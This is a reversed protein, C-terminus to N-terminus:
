IAAGLEWAVGQSWAHPEPPPQQFHNTVNMNVVNPQAPTDAVANQGAGGVFAPQAQTQPSPQSWVPAFNSGFNTYLEERAASFNVMDNYANTAATTTDQNIQESLGQYTSRASTVDNAIDTITEAPEGMSQAKTLIGEWFQQLNQAAAQDDLLTPLEENEPTNPNDAVNNTQSLAYAENLGALSEKLGLQEVFKEASPPGEAEAVSAGTAEPGTEELNTTELSATETTAEEKAINDILQTFAASPYKTAIATATRKSNTLIGQLKSIAGRREGLVANWNEKDKPDGSKNYKNAINTLTTQDTSIVNNLHEIEHNATELRGQDAHAVNHDAELQPISKYNVHHYVGGTHAVVSIGREYEKLTEESHKTSRKASVLSKGKKGKESERARLVTKKASDRQNKLSVLKTQESKLASDISSVVENVQDLPVAAASYPDPVHLEKIQQATAGTGPAATATAKKAAAKKAPAKKKSKGKAAEDVNYGLESAAERLYEVNDSRYAPNTAIVYETRNEEGVLLTPSDYKGGMTKEYPGHAGGEAHGFTKKIVNTVTNVTNAAITVTKSAIGAIADALSNVSDLGSVFAKVASNHVQPIKLISALADKAPGSVGDHGNINVNKGPIKIGLIHHLMAVADAGGKDLVSVEKPSLKIGDISRLLSVIKPGDYATLPMNKTILKLTNLSKLTQEASSADAVVKMVVKQSAGAGLAASASKAVTNVDQSSTFKTAIKVAIPKGGQRSLAGISQEAQKTLEPLGKYSRALTSAVAAQRNLAETLQGSQYARNHELEGLQKTLENQRYGGTTKDLAISEKKAAIQKGMASVVTKLGTIDNETAVEATKGQNQAETRLKINTRLAENYALEAREHETTGTKTVELNHKLEKLNVNSTHLASGSEIMASTLSGWSDKLHANATAGSHVQQELESAASKTKLFHVALLTAGGVLASIGLTEPALALGLGGVSAALGDTAVTAETVGETAATAGGAGFIGKVFNIGRGLVGGGVAAGAAGEAASAAGGTAEAAGVEAGAEAGGSLMASRIEAAVSSGAETMSAAITAGADRAGGALGGGISFAGTGLAKLTGVAGLEKVLSVAKILMGVFAGIKNVAFLAGFTAGLTGLPGGLGILKTIGDILRSVFSVGQLLGTTFPALLNSWQVFAALLPSLAKALAEVDSVSRNFFRTMDNQGKSTNLFRNWADAAKTMSQVLKDGSDASGNLVTGILKGLSGFFHVLDEAHGGIRTIEGDLKAGPQTAKDIDSAWKNFGNGAPGAFIRAGADGVHIFAAGLHELGSLAPALFKNASAGLSDFIKIGAPSRLRSLVSDIRSSVINMTDNTNRALGPMLDSVTKVGSALVKGFDHKATSETLHAWENSMVHLGIAADRAQPSVSKLTSNMEQQATKAEKSSAGYKQVATTYAKTAERAASFDAIAPKLAGFVGAFNLGLGTIVGSAVTAAGVLGTGMVGVLSVIGGGLSTIIPSLAAVAAGLTRVTGSIPGANIRINGINAAKSQIDNFFGLLKLKARQLFGEDTDIKIDVPPHGGLANLEAKVAELRTRLFAEDLGVKIKAEKGFPAPKSATEEIKDALNAYERRLSAIRAQQKAAALEARTAATSELYAAKEADKAARADASQVQARARAYGDYAKQRDAEAKAIAAEAALAKAEGQVEIKVEAKRANLRTIALEAATIKRDLDDKNAQVVVEAREAKLSVIRAKVRDIAEDFRAADADIKAKAEMRSIAAMKAKFEAEVRDLGALADGDNLSINIDGKAIETM